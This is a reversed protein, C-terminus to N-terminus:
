GGNLALSMRRTGCSKIFEDRWRQTCRKTEMGGDTKKDMKRALRKSMETKTVKHEMNLGDGKNSRKDM